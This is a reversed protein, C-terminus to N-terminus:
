KILRILMQALGSINTRTLDFNQTASTEKNALSQATSRLDTFKGTKARNLNDLRIAENTLKGRDVLASELQKQVLARSLEYSSRSSNISYRAMADNTRAYM